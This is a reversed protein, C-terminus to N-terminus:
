WRAVLNSPNSSGISSDELPQTQVWWCGKIMGDRSSSVRNEIPIAARLSMPTWDTQRNGKVVAM